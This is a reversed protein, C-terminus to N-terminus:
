AGKEGEKSKRGEELLEGTKKRAKGRLRRQPATEKKDAGGEDKTEMGRLDQRGRDLPLYAGRGESRPMRGSEVPPFHVSLGGPPRQVLPSIGGPVGREREWLIDEGTRRGADAAPSRKGRQARLPLLGPFHKVHFLAGCFLNQPPGRSNWLNGAFSNGFIPRRCEGGTGAERASRAPGREGETGWLAQRGQTLPPASRIRLPPTTPM